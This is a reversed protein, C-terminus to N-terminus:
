LAPPDGWYGTLGGCTSSPHLFPASKWLLASTYLGVVPGHVTQVVGSYWAAVVENGLPSEVAGPEAQTALRALEPLLGRDEFAAYLVRAARPDLMAAPFGTLSASLAVFAELSFGAQAFLRVPLGASVAALGSLLVMRRDVM